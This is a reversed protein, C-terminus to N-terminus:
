RQILSIRHFSARSTRVYVKTCLRPRSHQLWSAATQLVLTHRRTKVHAKKYQQLNECPPCAARQLPTQQTYHLTVPSTPQEIFVSPM